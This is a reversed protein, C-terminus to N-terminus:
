KPKPENKKKSREDILCTGLNIALPRGFCIIKSKGKVPALLFFPKIKIESNQTESDYFAIRNWAVACLICCFRNRKNSNTTKKEEKIREIIQYWTVSFSSHFHVVYYFDFWKLIRMQSNKKDNKESTEKERERNKKDGKRM